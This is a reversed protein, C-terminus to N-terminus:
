TIKKPKATLFDFFILCVAMYSKLYIGQVTVLQMKFLFHGLLIHAYCVSLGLVLDLDLDLDLNLEFRWIVM